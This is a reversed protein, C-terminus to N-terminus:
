PDCCRESSLKTDNSPPMAFSALSNSSCSTASVFSSTRYSSSLALVAAIASPMPIAVIAIPPNNSNNMNTWRSATHRHNREPPAVANHPDRKNDQAPYQESRALGFCLFHVHYGRSRRLPHLLTRLPQCLLRGGVLSLFLGDLHR